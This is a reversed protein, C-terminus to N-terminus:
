RCVLIKYFINIFFNLVCILYPIHYYQFNHIQKSFYTFFFIFSSFIFGSIFVFFLFLFLFIIINILFMCILLFILSLVFLILDCSKPILVAFIDHYDINYHYIKIPTSIFIFSFVIKIPWIYRIM